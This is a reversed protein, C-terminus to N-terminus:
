YVYEDDIVVLGVPAGENRIEACKSSDVDHSLRVISGASNEKGSLESRVEDEHVDAHGTQIPKLCGASDPNLIRSRFDHKHGDV